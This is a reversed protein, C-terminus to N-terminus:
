NVVNALSRIPVFVSGSLEYRPKILVLVLRNWFLVVLQYSGVDLSRPFLVVGVLLATLIRGSVM